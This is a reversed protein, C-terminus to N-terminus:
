PRNGQDAAAHHGNLPVGPAEIVVDVLSALVLHAGAAALDVDDRDPVGVTMLGAAAASRVGTPSDEFAVADGPAVGLLRCAELYVDPLPKPRGLDVGSTVVALVGLGSARLARHVLSAATNSAVALAMRGHLGLVLAGVGPRLPAGAEYHALMIDLVEREIDAAPIGLRAAYVAASDVLSRGHAAERDADSYVQGHREVLEREADHWMPETDLLLGDMDFVAASYRGPLVLTTV